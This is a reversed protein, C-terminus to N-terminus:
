KPVASCTRINDRCWYWYYQLYWYWNWDGVCVLVGVLESRPLGCRFAASDDPRCIKELLSFFLSGLGLNDVEIAALRDAAVRGFGGYFLVFQLSGLMRFLSSYM